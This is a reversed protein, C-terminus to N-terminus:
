EAERRTREVLVRAATGLADFQEMQYRVFEPGQFQRISSAIDSSFQWTNGGCNLELVFLRGTAAQRIIDCGKLPIEPLAAHAARAIALVDPDAIFLRERNAVAQIAVIAKEIVDDAANRDIHAVSGQTLYALLPEGFFTLVRYGAIKDGTDVFQQVMM